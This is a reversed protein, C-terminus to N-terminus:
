LKAARAPSLKRERIIQEIRDLTEESLRVSRVRELMAGVTVPRDGFNRKIVQSFSEGPRKQRSLLAYAEIDITITKVAM